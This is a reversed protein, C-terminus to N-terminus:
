SVQGSFITTRSSRAYLFLSGRCSFWCRRSCFCRFIRVALVDDAIDHGFRRFGSALRSDCGFGRCNALFLDYRIRRPDHFARDDAFAHFGDSRLQFLSLTHFWDM